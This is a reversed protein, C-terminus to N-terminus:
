AVPPEDDPAVRATLRYKGPAINKFEFAGHRGAVVEAYRLVDDASAPEAPVLHVVLKAPLRAEEKEM